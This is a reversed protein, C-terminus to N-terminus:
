KDTARTREARESTDLKACIDAAASKMYCGLSFLGLLVASAYNGILVSAFCTVSAAIASYFWARSM